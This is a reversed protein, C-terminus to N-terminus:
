ADKETPDVGAAGTSINYVGSAGTIVKGVTTKLAAPATLGVIGLETGLEGASGYKKGIESNYELKPLKAGSTDVGATELIGRAPETIHNITNVAGNVYMKGTDVVQNTAEQQGKISAQEGKITEGLTQNFLRDLKQKNADSVAFTATQGDESIQLNEVKVGATKALSTMENIKDGWVRGDKNYTREIYRTLAADESLPKGGETTADIMALVPKNQIAAQSAGAGKQQQMMAAREEPTYAPAAEFKFQENYAVRENLDTLIEADFEKTLEFATKGKAKLDQFEKATYPTSQGNARHNFTTNKNTWKDAFEKADRDSLGAAKAHAELARHVFTQPSDTQKIAVPLTGGAYREPVKTRPAAAPLSAANNVFQENAFSALSGNLKLSM